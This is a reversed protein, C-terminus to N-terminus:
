SFALSLASLLGIDGDRGKLTELTAADKPAPCASKLSKIRCLFLFRPNLILHKTTFTQSSAFKSKPQISRRLSAEILRGQDAVSSNRERSCPAQEPGILLRGLM